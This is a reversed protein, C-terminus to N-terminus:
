TCQKLNAIMKHCTLECKIHNITVSLEINYIYEAETLNALTKNLKIPSVVSVEM